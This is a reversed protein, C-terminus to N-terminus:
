YKKLISKRVSRSLVRNQQSQEYAIRNHYRMLRYNGAQMHKIELRQHAKNSRVVSKSKPPDKWLGQRKDITEFMSDIFNM